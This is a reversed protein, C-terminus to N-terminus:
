LPERLLGVAEPFTLTGGERYADDYAEEGLHARLRVADEDLSHREWPTCATQRLNDHAGLVVAARRAPERADGDDRLGAIGTFLTVAPPFLLVGMRPGIVPSLPHAEMYDVAERLHPLGGYPDGAMGTLWGRIAALLGFIFSPMGRPPDAQMADLLEFGEDLEGRRSLMAVLLVKGYYSADDGVPRFRQADTIGERVLREGEEEQGSNALADGLRVTMMPVQQHAGLKLALGIAERCSEAARAWDGSNATAEAEAALVEALGWDDGARGFLARAERIDEMSQAFRDEVDNMVKARLQLAFALEWTRGHQRCSSVTSDILEPMLDFRGTLMAGLMRFLGPRRSSQPLEPPYAEIIAEGLAVFRPESWADTEEMHAFVEATRVWRRAETLLHPTMPLPDDLPGRDLPPLAHPGAFADVPSMKAVVGPWYGMESRYNRMEWFWSSALVLCLAEQEDDTEVARRIAARLNEHERELRDLWLLQRSGRLEPDATRVYERFYSTHRRGVTGREGAEDLREAAYEGITELMRYRAGDETLDAVVLSKDVLSALLHAVDRADVFDGGDGGSVAEAAALDWGGAFVALRRLVTREAESLLGWSWDVVARLTQQRPLVTRSGATLIRFRDDLRDALQRPTMMRLRAAALEIALPLGDLRRCLEACAEPDEDPTFGPRAAAGRDALLRLAPSEPLPDLPRISEGPIGLPERSTALVALDPCHALLREALEAAAGIVHECNDLVLLLRRDACYETLQLLPDKAVAGKAEAAFAAEAASGPHLLTERLGLANVVAVAVTRPDEVPALEAFWVGDPWQGAVADGVEQSLRTKGTGGPGTITVLRSASLDSALASLDAERGVFSTLRARANGQRPPPVPAPAPAAPMLLEAHLARLEPGPDTGLTDALERRVDEYAVLADAARGAGRLARLRLAQVPENLPHAAALETIEPLVQEARGLAVEATIRLRRADLRLADYRSAVSARDPLDALVPGRWLALAGDLADAAKAADGDALARGGDEVLREFRFLDVADPAAALRYGGDVSAVAEHGLTRRLRAVLAQLAGTADSPPEGEWVEDILAETTRVRGPRLALAALLARLRNGALPVATGDDRHAQTTGLIGYRM